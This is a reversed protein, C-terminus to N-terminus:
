HVRNIHLNNALFISLIEFIFIIWENHTTIYCKYIAEYCWTVICHEGGQTVNRLNHGWRLIRSGQQRTKNAHTEILSVIVCAILKIKFQAFFHQNLQYRVRETSDSIALIIITNWSPCHYKPNQLFSGNFLCFGM